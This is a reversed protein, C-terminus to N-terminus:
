YVCFSSRSFITCFGVNWCQVFISSSLLFAGFFLTLGICLFVFFEVELDVKHFMNIPRYATDVEVM